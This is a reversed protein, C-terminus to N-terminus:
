RAYGGAARFVGPTCWRAQHAALFVVARVDTLLLAMAGM